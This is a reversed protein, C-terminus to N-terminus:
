IEINIVHSEVKDQESGTMSLKASWDPGLAGGYVEKKDKSGGCAGTDLTYKARRYKDPKEPSSNSSDSLHPLLFTAAGEDFFTQGISNDKIVWVM